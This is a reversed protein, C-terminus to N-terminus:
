KYHKGGCTTTIIISFDGRGLTQKTKVKSYNNSKRKFHVEKRWELYFKQCLKSDKLFNITLLVHFDMNKTLFM